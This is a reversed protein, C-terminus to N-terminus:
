SKSKSCEDCCYGTSVSASPVTSQIKADTMACYMVAGTQNIQISVVRLEDTGFKISNSITKIHAAACKASIVLGRSTVCYARNDNAMIALYTELSKITLPKSNM